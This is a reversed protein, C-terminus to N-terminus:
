KVERGNVIIKDYDELTSIILNKGLSDQKVQVWWGFVFWSKYEYEVKFTERKAVSTREISKVQTM